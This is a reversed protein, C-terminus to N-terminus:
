PTPSVWYSGDTIYEKKWIPVTKKLTDIAYQCAEFCVARHPSSVVIIVAIEGIHAPGSRHHFAVKKAGLEDICHQAIKEMEKIAMPEYTDFDLHTVDKGKNHDRVTGVFLCNGGCADDRVFAYARDISLPDSSIIIQTTDM